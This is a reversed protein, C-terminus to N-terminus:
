NGIRKKGKKRIKEKRKREKEMRIREKEHTEFAVREEEELRDLQHEIRRRIDRDRRYSM